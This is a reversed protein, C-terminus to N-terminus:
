IDKKAKACLVTKKENDNLKIHEKRKNNSATSDANETEVHLLLRAGASFAAM